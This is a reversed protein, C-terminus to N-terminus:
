DAGPSLSCFTREEVRREEEGRITEAIRERGDRVLLEQLFVFVVQNTGREEEGEWKRMRWEVSLHPFDLFSLHAKREREVEGV